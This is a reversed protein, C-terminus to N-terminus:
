VREPKLRGALEPPFTIGESHKWEWTCSDGGDTIIVRKTMGLRGGVSRCLSIARNVATEADCFRVVCEHTDDNFFQYVSFESRM